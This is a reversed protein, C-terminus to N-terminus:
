GLVSDLCREAWGYVDWRTVARRLYRMRDRQEGAGLEIAREITDALGDLDYPNVVLARDLQEAAGAFESLVLVGTGDVRCAIYEKAVLNMGDRLPTIVMVDAARYYAVLEERALSRHLYHVPVWDRRGFEGNIRGVLLEIQDRIIQYEEVGARSPVAVQVFTVQGRLDPRRELVTQFARLRLDIGKTYDLRDVGLMLHRPSGLERRFRVAADAIEPSGALAKFEATDISIPVSEVTITRGQWSLQGAPGTATSFVRAARAFNRASQRTHFGIVDAGLLGAIIERRWPLRGFIEVPPFPIHLFFGIRRDPTAARLMAPVLQLQYDQVWVPEDVATESIVADAFRQNVVVYPRWWHRHMEVPRIADHYLPWITGNCFGEYYDTFEEASITVPVQRIGELRFPEEERDAIGPWGVWAGRRDVLIPALASVLGGPSPAWRDAIDDWAVPLRNAVVVLGGRQPQM